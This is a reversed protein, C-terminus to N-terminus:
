ACQKERVVHAALLPRAIVRRVTMQRGPECGRWPKLFEVSLLGDPNRTDATADWVGLGEVGERLDQPPVASSLIEYGGAAAHQEVEDLAALFTAKASELRATAERLVTQRAAERQQAAIDQLRARVRAILTHFPVARQEALALVTTAEIYNAKAEAKREELPIRELRDATRAVATTLDALTQEAHTQATRLESLRASQGAEHEQLRTLLATLHEVDGASLAHAVARELEDVSAPQSTDAETESATEATDATRILRYARSSSIGLVEAIQRVSKGEQKLAVAQQELDHETYQEM